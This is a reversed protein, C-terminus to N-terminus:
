KNPSILGIRIAYLILEVTSKIDLKKSINKRHTNVTHPSIFLKEAIEKGTLGEALLQIIECERQSLSTDPLARKTFDHKLLIDIIKDPFFIIGKVCAEIAEIVQQESCDDSIYNKVGIDIIKEIVDPSKEHSSILIKLGPYQTKIKGIGDLPFCYDCCYHIILVDFSTKQLIISLTEIDTVEGACEFNQTQGIFTDWGKRSSFSTDAIIIKIKNLLKEKM